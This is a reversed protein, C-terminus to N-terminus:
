TGSRFRGGISGRPEQRLPVEPQLHFEEEEEGFYIAIYVSVCVSVSCFTFALFVFLYYFLVTGFILFSFIYVLLWSSSSSSFNELDRKIQINPLKRYVCVVVIVVM